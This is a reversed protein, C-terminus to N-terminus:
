EIKKNGLLGSVYTGAQKLYSSSNNTNNEISNEHLKKRPNISLAQNSIRKEPKSVGELEPLKSRDIRRSHIRKEDLRSEAKLQQFKSNLSPPEPFSNSSDLNISMM